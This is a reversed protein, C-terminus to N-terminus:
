DMQKDVFNRFGKGDANKRNRISEIIASFISM